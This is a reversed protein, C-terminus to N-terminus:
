AAGEANGGDDCRAQDPDPRRYPTRVPPRYRPSVARRPRPPRRRVTEVGSVCVALWAAGVCFGGVVDSFYHAGLYMRSFGILLILTGLGAVAAVRAWRRRLTRVLLYALMGYGAMSASSHGSPFSHNNEHVAVDKFPPRPRGYVEKLEQNLVGAGALAVMWVFALLRRRRLWLVVGVVLGFVLLTQFAGMETIGIVVSRVAPHAERHAHLREGLATDFRTLNGQRDVARATLAFLVLLVLSMVLGLTLHLGLYEERSLRRALFGRVGQWTM